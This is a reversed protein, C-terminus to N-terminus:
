CARVKDLLTKFIVADEPEADRLVIHFVFLAKSVTRWDKEAMKAWLKRLTM